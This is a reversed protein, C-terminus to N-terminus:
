QMARDQYLCYLGVTPVSRLIQPSHILPDNQQLWEHEIKSAYLYLIFVMHSGSATNMLTTIALIYKYFMSLNHLIDTEGSSLSLVVNAPTLFLAGFSTLLLENYFKLIYEPLYHHKCTIILRTCLYVVWLM